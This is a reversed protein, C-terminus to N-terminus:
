FTSTSLSTVAMLMAAVIIGVVVFMVLIMFPEFLALLRKITKEIDGQYIKAIKLFMEGLTGTEEGVTVLQVAMKPFIGTQSMPMSMGDGKKVGKIIPDMAKVFVRNNAIEKTISMADLLSVSSNLLIGLTNSFRNVEIQVFLSGLIPMKLKIEDWKDRGEDSGKWRSFAVWAIISISLIWFKYDALFTTSDVMVQTIWPLDQGVQDFVSQFRPLVFFVLVLVTGVGTLGLISPYILASILYSRMNQRAELYETINDLVKELVGAAEGTRVMNVYLREFVRPHKALSDAFSNGAKVDKLVQRIVDKLPERDTTDILLTLARALPLGARLLTALKDSFDLVEKGSIRNIPLIDEIKIDSLNFETVKKPKDSVSLPFLGKRELMALAQPKGSAELTGSELKGGPNTAKYYFTPM